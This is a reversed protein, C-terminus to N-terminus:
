TEPNEFMRKKWRRFGLYGIAVVAIAAIAGYLGYKDNAKVAAEGFVYAVLGVLTAWAIGGLANRLFFRWWPM